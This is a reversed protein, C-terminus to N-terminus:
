GEQMETALVVTFMDTAAFATNENILHLALCVQLVANTEEKIDSTCIFM